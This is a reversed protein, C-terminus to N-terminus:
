YKYTVRAYYPKYGKKANYGIFDRNNAKFKKTTYYNKGNVKKVFTIKASVLHYKSPPFYANNMGIVTQYGPYGSGVHNKHNHNKSCHFLDIVDQIKPGVKKVVPFNSDKFYIKGTTKKTVASAPALAFGAVAVFLILLILIKKKNM